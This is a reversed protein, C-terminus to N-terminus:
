KIKKQEPNNGTMSRSSSRFEAIGSKYKDRARALFSKKIVALRRRRAKIGDAATTKENKFISNNETRNTIM